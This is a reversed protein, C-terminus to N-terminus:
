VHFCHLVVFAFALVVVVVRGRLLSHPPVFLIMLRLLFIWSLCPVSRLVPCTPICLGDEICTGSLPAIGSSACGSTDMQLGISGCLFMRNCGEGWGEM